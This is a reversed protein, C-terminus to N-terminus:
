KLKLNDLNNEIYPTKNETFPQEGIDDSEIQSLWDPLSQNKEAPVTDDDLFIYPELNTSDELAPEWGANKMWAPIENKEDSILDTSNLELM